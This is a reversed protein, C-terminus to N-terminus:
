EKAYFIMEMRPKERDLTVEQVRPMVFYDDKFLCGELSDMLIEICNHADRGRRDPYYFYLDAYYWVNDSEKKWKQKKIQKKICKAMAEKYQRTKVKAIKRNGRYFFAHNKSPPIDVSIHLKQNPYKPKDRKLHDELKSM